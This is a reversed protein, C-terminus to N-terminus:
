VWDLGIDFNIASHTLAGVSIREVGTEAIARTTQLNVGGSAELEISPALRNRMEVAKRLKEVPMNDLLIIDCPTSLAVQLQELTDVEIQVTTQRGFPLRDANAEIWQRARAIVQPIDDTRTTDNDFFALHNDKILIADYLGMRHNSGGGCKVAYKELRRFGPTTKRTDYVKATTGKIEDVFRRTLTSVGSLRGMFNLCTREIMLIDRAPGSFTAVVQRPRIPQGDDVQVELSIRQAYHEIAIKCVEIGCLIGEQRSVLSARSTKEDGFLAATTCDIASDLSFSRLDEMLAVAILHHTDAYTETDLM